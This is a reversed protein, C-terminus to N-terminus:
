RPRAFVVLLELREYDVFRHRARAPVFLADGERVDLREDEAELVGSGSLVIYLEDDEHPQQRDPEPAALAYLGLELGPSEHLVDYDGAALERAVNGLHVARM